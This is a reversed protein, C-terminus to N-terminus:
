SLLAGVDRCPTHRFQFPDYGRLFGCMAQESPVNVKEVLCPFLIDARADRPAVFAGSQELQSLYHCAMKRANALHYSTLQRGGKVWKAYYTGKKAHFASFGRGNTVHTTSTHQEASTQREYLVVMAKGVAVSDSMLLAKIQARTM